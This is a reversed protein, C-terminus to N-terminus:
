LRVRHIRVCDPTLRLPASASRLNRERGRRPCNAPIFVILLEVAAMGSREHAIDQAAETGSLERAGRSTSFETQAPGAEVFEKAGVKGSAGAAARGM